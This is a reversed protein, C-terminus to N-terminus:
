VATKPPAVVMLATRLIIWCDLGLSWNELYEIDSAMRGVVEDDTGATGRFGRVQALGTIGPKVLARVYARQYIRRYQDNYAPLHPRPGVISMNGLLVNLFQVMEDLSSKRLFSGMPYLRPDDKSKPLSLNNSNGMHMTRLKVITFPHNYLGERFQRYFLPGPSQLKQGIWTCFALVPLVFVVVPLSVCIDLGRKLFRNVPDQLPEDRLGLFFVGGDEFVMLPQGFFRDLDAVVLLRVGHEECLVTYHLLDSNQSFEVVIVMMTGPQGLFSPLDCPRGLTPLPDDAMDEKQESLLGIIDLGLYQNRELWHHVLVAKAKPGVLLVKQRWSSGFRLNRLLPPLYWNTVLLTVFLAPVFSFPLFWSVNAPDAALVGILFYFLAIATQRLSKRSVSELTPVRIGVDERAPRSHLILGLLVFDNYIFFHYQDLRAAPMYWFWFAASVALCRFFAVLSQTGSKRNTIM